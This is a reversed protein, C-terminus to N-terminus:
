KGKQLDQWLSRLVLLCVTASVAGVAVAVALLAAAMALFTLAVAGGIGAAVYLGLPRPDPQRVPAPVPTQQRTIEQAALVAAVLRVMETDQAADQADQRAKDLADSM